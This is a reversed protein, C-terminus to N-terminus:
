NTVKLSSLVTKTEGTLSNTVKVAVGVRKGARVKALASGPIVNGPGSYDECEVNSYTFNAALPSGEIKVTIKGGSKSITTQQISPNPM